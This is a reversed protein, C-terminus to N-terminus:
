RRIDKVTNFTQFKTPIGPTSNKQFISKLPVPVANGQGSFCGAQGPNRFVGALDIIDSSQNTSAPGSAAPNDV